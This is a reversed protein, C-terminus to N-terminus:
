KNLLKAVSKSELIESAEKSDIWGADIRALGHGDGSRGSKHILLCKEKDGFYVFEENELRGAGRNDAYLIGILTKPYSIPRGMFGKYLKIFDYKVFNKEEDSLTGLRIWGGIREICMMILPDDFVISSYTGVRGLASEVKAWASLATSDADGLILEVIDVPKPAFRSTNAHENLARKIDELEFKSLANFAIEIAADSTKSNYLEHTATWYAIFEAFDNKTM